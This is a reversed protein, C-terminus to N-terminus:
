LSITEPQNAVRICMYIDLDLRLQLGVDKQSGREVVGGVGSGRIGWFYECAFSSEGINERTWNGLRRAEKETM